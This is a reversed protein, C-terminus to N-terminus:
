LRGRLMARLMALQRRHVAAESSDRFPRFDPRTLIRGYLPILAGPLLAPLFARAIRTGAVVRFRRRASDVLETVIPTVNPTGGSFIDEISIGLESIRDQPLVLRRRAANFPLARCLGILAYAIGLERAQEDLASGAGLIRAALRMINASTADTYAELSATDAFPAEELDSERADILADFPARPLEHAAITEGLANTLAHASSAGSYLEAIRDRWWQLRIQGAIPQSVTEATKAVEYNFAYLTLLHPRASGPAFLASLYRDYDANRVSALRVTDSTM